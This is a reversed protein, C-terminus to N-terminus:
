WQRICLLFSRTIPLSSVRSIYLKKINKQGHMM